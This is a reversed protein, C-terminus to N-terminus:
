RVVTNGNNICSRLGCRGVGTAKDGACPEDCCSPHKMGGVGWWECRRMGRVVGEGTWPEDCRPQCYNGSQINAVKQEVFNPPLAFRYPATNDVTGARLAPTKSASPVFLVQPAPAPIYATAPRAIFTPLSTGRDLAPAYLPHREPLAFLSPLLPCVPMFLLANPM